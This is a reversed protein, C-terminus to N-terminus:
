PVFCFEGERLKAKKPNSDIYRVYHAYEERDRVIHDYSEDMWFTGRSHLNSNCGRGSAGKIGKLLTSIDEGQLPELLLHVHNPMIVGHHICLRENQFRMLCNRVCERCDRRRLVCSGYGADLWYELREGFLRQYADRTDPDWPPPNWHLWIDRERKWSALKTKPLSDALRFTIWYTAGERKWHPLHRHTKIIHKPNM